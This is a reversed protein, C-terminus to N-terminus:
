WRRCSIAVPRSRKWRPKSPASGPGGHPWFKARLCISEPKQEFCHFLIIEGNVGYWTWLILVVVESHRICQIWFCQQNHSCRNSGPLWKMLLKLVITRTFMTRFLVTTSLSQRKLLRHRLYDDEIDCLNDFRWDSNIVSRNLVVNMQATMSCRSVVLWISCKGERPRM